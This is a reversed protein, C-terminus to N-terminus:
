KFVIDDISGNPPIMPIVSETQDIMCRLLVPRDNIELAKKLASTFEQKNTVNFGTGGFAEILKVYDTKRNLITQSRRKDFFMDQWQRVMGLANNDLLIILIPLNNSVATALENLNMHFSGDSTVHVTRKKGRALSAGIAAGLGFGMAGLGGSTVFTRPKRFPYYQATWMQHQGVDTAVVTDNEMSKGLEKMISYPSYEKHEMRSHNDESWRLEKIYDLWETNKSQKIKPLLAALIKNVDGELFYDTQVNKNIEARDIDIQLVKCRKRFKEKNGTTRDSFRTGIAILLDCEAQAKSAAYRGHMGILGLFSEHERPIASLGMLSCGIPANLKKSLRLVFESANASVVGGGIYLYPKQSSSILALAKEFNIEKKASEKEFNFKKSSNYETTNTQMDKPIDILVPGKKGKNAIYFARRITEQLDATDKIIFNHKTIPMTIGLMDIEQFSDRGILATPVNGTIIVMPISDLYANAIGTVTNTAGPGSTAIAVGTKGSVRAYGDAAHVAGQEHATIYHKIAGQEEAKYLEDYINIVTGGPYGFVETIGHHKLEEILIQAGTLKM